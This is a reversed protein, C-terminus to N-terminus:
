LETLMEIQNQCYKEGPRQNVVILTKLFMRFNCVLKEGSFYYSNQQMSYTACSHKVGCLLGIRPVIIYRFYPKALVFGM